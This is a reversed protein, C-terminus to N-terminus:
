PEGVEGLARSIVSKRDAMRREWGKVEVAIHPLLEVLYYHVPNPIGLRHSLVVTLLNDNLVKAKYEIKDVASDLVAGRFFLKVTRLFNKV